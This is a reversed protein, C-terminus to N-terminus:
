KVNLLGRKTNAYVIKPVSTDELRLVIKYEMKDNVYANEVKAKSFDEKVDEKIIEPLTNADIKKFEVQNEKKDVSTQANMTTTAFIGALLTVIMLRKM